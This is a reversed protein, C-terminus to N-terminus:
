STDDGTHHSFLTSEYPTTIKHLSNLSIAFRITINGQQIDFLLHHEQEQVNWPQQTLCSPYNKTTDREQELCPQAQDLLTLLRTYALLYDPPLQTNLQLPSTFTHNHSYYTLNQQSIIALTNSNLSYNYTFPLIVDLDILRELNSIHHHFSSDYLALFSTTANDPHFACRESYWVSYGAYTCEPTIFGGKSAHSTITDELALTAAANAHFTILHYDQGGLYLDFAEKGVYTTKNAIKGTTVTIAFILFGIGIFLIAITGKKHTTSPKM